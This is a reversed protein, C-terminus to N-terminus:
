GRLRVLPESPMLDLLAPHETERGNWILFLSERSRSSMVYLKMKLFDEEQDQWAVGELGVLFVADFELGKCSAQNFVSIGPKDFELNHVNRHRKDVSSYTQVRTTKPAHDTLERHYNERVRDKGLCVVGVEHRPNNEVYRLLRARVAREDACRRLEPVPGRRDPLKPIGTPMGAYFHSAVEAVERTNRFNTTLAYERDDAIQLISRIEEISSNEDTIRQNEDALIMLGSLGDGFVGVEILYVIRFFDPPFDQAEDIILVDFDIAEWNLSDAHRTLAKFYREWDISDNNGSKTPRRVRPSWRDFADPRRWYTGSDVKWCKKRGTIINWAQPDWIAGLAKAEDKEEFPTNLFIWEDEDSPPVGLADWIESFQRNITTFRINDWHKKSSEPLRSSTFSQLVSNFMGVVPRQGKKAVELARLVALVTKGTGPPGTVLVRGETPAYLYVNEQEENLDRTNPFRV